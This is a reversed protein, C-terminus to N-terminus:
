YPLTYSYKYTLSGGTPVTFSLAQSQGGPLSAAHTTMSGPVGSGYGGQFTYTVGAVTASAPAGYTPGGSPAIYPQGLAAPVYPKGVIAAQEPKDVVAVYIYYYYFYDGNSGVLQFACTGQMGVVTPVAPNITCTDYPVGWDSPGRDAYYTLYNWRYTAPKYPQATVEPQEPAPAIYPQGPNSNDGGAAGKGTLMLSTVAAPISVSGSGTVALEVSYTARSQGTLSAHVPGLETVPVSLSGALALIGSPTMTVKYVCSAGALLVQGCTHGSALSFGVGSVSPDGITLPGIGTNRLVADQTIAAGDLQGGFDIGSLALAGEVGEGDARVQAVGGKDGAAAVSGSYAQAAGPAFTVAFTCSGGAPLTAGCSSDSISFSAPAKIGFAQAAGQGRNSVTLMSSKAQQGVQVRGFALAGESASLVLEPKPAKDPDTPVKVETSPPSDWWGDMNKDPLGGEEVSSDLAGRLVVAPRRVVIRYAGEAGYCQAPLAEYPQRLVGDDGRSVRNYAKCTALPVTSATSIIPSGAKPMAWGIGQGLEEAHAVSVLSFSAASAAPPLVGHPISRLYGATVLEEVTSPYRNNEAQFVDMAALIQTEEVVLRTAQAHAQADSLSSGGFYSSAAVMAVVLAIAIVAIILSVM